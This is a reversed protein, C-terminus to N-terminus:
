GASGLLPMIQVAREVSELVADFAFELIKHPREILYTFTLVDNTIRYRLRAAVKIPQGGAYPSLGLVFRTPVKIAAKSTTGNVDEAYTFQVAGNDLNVGSKFHVTKKAELSRAAELITANDPEAIDGVNDELFEAFATQSLQQGNKGLWANWEPSKELILVARHSCWSPSDEGGHYDIVATLTSARRDAFIRTNETKFENLYANFSEADALTVAQRIRRPADLFNELSETSFGAPLLAFPTTTGDSHIAAAAMGQAFAADYETRITTEDM